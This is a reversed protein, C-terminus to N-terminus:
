YYTALIIGHEPSTAMQQGVCMYGPLLSQRGPRRSRLLVIGLSHNFM